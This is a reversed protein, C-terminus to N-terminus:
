AVYKRLGTLRLVLLVIVVGLVVRVFTKADTFPAYEQWM